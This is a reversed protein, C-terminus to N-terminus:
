LKLEIDVSQPIQLLKLTELLESTPNKIYILRKYTRIELQERSDKHRHVSRLITDKVIKTPLPFPGSIDFNDKKTVAIIKKVVGDLVRHNFSSLVIRIQKQNM